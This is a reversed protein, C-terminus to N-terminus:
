MPILYMHLVWICLLVHTLPQPSVIRYHHHQTNAKRTAIGYQWVTHAKELPLLRNSYTASRLIVKEGRQVGTIFKSNAEWGECGWVM